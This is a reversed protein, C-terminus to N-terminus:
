ALPDIAELHQGLRARVWNAELEARHRASWSRVLRLQTPPLEGAILAGDFGISAKYEAYRAHAGHWSFAGCIRLQQYGNLRRPRPCSNRTPAAFKAAM